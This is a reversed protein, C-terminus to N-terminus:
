RDGLISSLGVCPGVSLLKLIQRKLEALTMDPEVDVLIIADGSMGRLSIRMGWPLEESIADSLAAMLDSIRRYRAAERSALILEKFEELQRQLRVACRGLDSMSRSLGGFLVM